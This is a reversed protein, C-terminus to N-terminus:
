QRPTATTVLSMRMAFLTIVSVFLRYLCLFIVSVGMVRIGIMLMIFCLGLQFPGPHNGLPCIFRFQKHLIGLQNYPLFGGKGNM